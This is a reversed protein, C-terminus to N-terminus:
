LCGYEAKVVFAGVKSCWALGLCMILGLVAAGRVQMQMAGANSAM